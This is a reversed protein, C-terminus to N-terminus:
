TRGIEAALLARIREALEAAKDGADLTFMSGVVDPPIRRDQGHCRFVVTPTALRLLGRQPTHRDPLLEVRKIEHLGVVWLTFWSVRLRFVGRRPEYYLATRGAGAVMAVSVAALGLKVALPAGLIFCAVQSVFASGAVVQYLLFLPGSRVLVQPEDGLPSEAGM